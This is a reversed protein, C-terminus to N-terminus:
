ERLTESYCQRVNFLSTTSVKKHKNISFHHIMKRKMDQYSAISFGLLSMYWRLTTEKLTEEVLMCNLSDTVRIIVMQINITIIHEKTDSMDDFIALTLKIHNPVQTDWIETSLPRTWKIKKITLRLDYKNNYTVCM